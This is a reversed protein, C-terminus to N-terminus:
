ANDDKSSPVDCPVRSTFFEFSARARSRNAGGNTISLVGMALQEALVVCGTALASAYMIHKGSRGPIFSLVTDKIQFESDSRILSDSHFFLVCASASTSGQRAVHPRLYSGCTRGDPFWRSQFMMSPHAQFERKLPTAPVAVLRTRLIQSKRRRSIGRCVFMIQIEFVSTEFCTM